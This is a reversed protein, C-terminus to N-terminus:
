YLTPNPSLLCPDGLTCPVICRLVLIPSHVPQPMPGSRSGLTRCCSKPPLPLSTVGLDSWKTLADDPPPRLYGIWVTRNQENSDHSLYFKPRPRSKTQGCTAVMYILCDVVVMYAWHRIWPCSGPQVLCERSKNEKAFQRKKV